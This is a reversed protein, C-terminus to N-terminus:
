SLARAYELATRLEGATMLDHMKNYIETDTKGAQVMDVVQDRHSKIPNHEPADETVEGLKGAKKMQAKLQYISAVTAGVEEAIDKPKEGAIILEEAKEKDWTAKRGFGSSAWARSKKKSAPEPEPEEEEEEEEAEEEETEDESEEEEDQLANAQVMMDIAQDATIWRDVLEVSDDDTHRMITISYKNQQM